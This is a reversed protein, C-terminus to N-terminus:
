SLRPSSRTRSGYGEFANEALDVFALVRDAAAASVSVGDADREISNANAAEALSMVDPLRGTLANRRLDLDTLRTGAFADRPLPGSLLNRSLDLGVLRADAGLLSGPVGGVLSNNKARLFQLADQTGTAGFGPVNGTLRNDSFDLFTALPANTAFREPITGEFANKESFFFLLAPCGGDRPPAPLAGSLANGSIKVDVSASGLLCEQGIPFAGKLGVARAKFSALTSARDRFASCVESTFTNESRRAADSASGDFM